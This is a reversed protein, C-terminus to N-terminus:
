EFNRVRRRRCMPPTAVGRGCPAAHADFGCVDLGGRRVVRDDGLLLRVQGLDVCLEEGHAVLERLLELVAVLAGRCVQALEGVLDARVESTRVLRHLREGGDLREVGDDVGVVLVVVEGDVLEAPEQEQQALGVERLNAELHRRVAGRAVDVDAGGAHGVVATTGEDDVPSVGDGLGVVVLVVALGGVGDVPAGLGDLELQAALEVDRAVVEVHVEVGRDGDLVRKQEARKAAVM